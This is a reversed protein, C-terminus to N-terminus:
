NGGCGVNARPDRSVHASSISRPPGCGACAWSRHAHAPPPGGAHFALARTHRTGRAGDSGAVPCTASRMSCTRARRRRMVQALEGGVRTVLASLEPRSHLGGDCGSVKSAELISRNPLLVSSMKRLGASRSLSSPSASRCLPTATWRPSAAPATQLQTRCGPPEHRGAAAIPEDDAAVQLRRSKDSPTRSELRPTQLAQLSPMWRWWPPSRHWAWLGGRGARTFRSCERMKPAKARKRGASLGLSAVKSHTFRTSYANADTRFPEWYWVCTNHGYDSLNSRYKLVKNQLHFGPPFGRTM